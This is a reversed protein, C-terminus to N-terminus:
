VIFKQAASRFNTYAHKANVYDFLIPQVPQVEIDPAWFEHITERVGDQEPM